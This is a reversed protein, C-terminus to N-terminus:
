ADLRLVFAEIAADLGDGPRVEAKALLEYIWEAGEHFAPTLGVSAYTAAIERMEGTWRDAVSPFYDMRREMVRWADPVSQRWEDRIEPGVGLLEGAMLAAARLANTGKTLSAYVMKLASARGTDRGIGRLDIMPGALWSIEDECPGSAYFRVPLRDQRPAAGVIGVDHFRVGHRDAISAIASLTAPSVANCDVFVVDRGSAEIASCAEEAFASAAAPPLISLLMDAAGAVEALTGVDEMGALAARSRSAASRGELATVVRRGDLSLCGAVASGMDGAGVIGITGVSAVTM